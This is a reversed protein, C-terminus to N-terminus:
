SRACQRASTVTPSKTPFDAALVIIHWAPSIVPLSSLNAEWMRLRPLQPRGSEAEALDRGRWNVVVFPKRLRCLVGCGTAALDNDVAGRRPGGAISSVM